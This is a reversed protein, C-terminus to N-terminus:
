FWQTWVSYILSSSEYKVQKFTGLIITYEIYLGAHSTLSNYRAYIMPVVDIDENIIIVMGVNKDHHMHHEWNTHYFPVSFRLKLWM